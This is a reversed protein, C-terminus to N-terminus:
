IEAKLKTSSLQGLTVPITPPSPAGTGATLHTHANLWTMLKQELVVFQAAVDSGVCVPAPAVIRAGSGALATRNMPYAIPYSLAHRTLDRASSLQGTSRYEAWDTESFHLWVMDGKVLPFVVAFGGAGPFGVSVNQVVPLDELEGDLTRRVAPQVDCTQTVDDYSQVIGPMSTHLDLSFSGHWDGLMEQLSQDM